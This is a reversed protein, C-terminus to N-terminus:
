KLSKFLEDWQAVIKLPEYKRSNKIGNKGLRQRLDSDNILLKLKERFANINGNEILFGDEENTIINKPGFPCDFSVVPLGCSMAEIMVMGFGESRSPLVFISSELYKDEITKVSDYFNIKRLNVKKAEENLNEFTGKGYVNLEWDPFIKEIKLWIELLLDYGKNFSYSGVAIIKKNERTSYKESKFPLPNPIIVLNNLNWEQKNGDSLLVIKAFNKGLIQKLEHQLKKSFSIGKGSNNLLFSAHSEYIWKAKTRIIKPLFFGKLADDCVSIVDPNIENVINQIGNKYKFFYQFPNSSVEISYFNVKDSFKFFPKAGIENLSFIHIEHGFNEVLLSAKVSLVRELGGSGTIGNTIYLIKM